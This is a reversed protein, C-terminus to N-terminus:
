FKVIIRKTTKSNNCNLHKQPNPQAIEIEAQKGPPPFSHAILERPSTFRVTDFKRLVCLGTMPAELIQKFKIYVTNRFSACPSEFAM